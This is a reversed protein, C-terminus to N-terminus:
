LRKDLFIFGPRSSPGAHLPAQWWVQCGSNSGWFSFQSRFTTMAECATTSHVCAYGILLICFPYYQLPRAPYQFWDSLVHENYSCLTWSLNTLFSFSLPLLLLKQFFSSSDPSIAGLNVTSGARGSNRPKIGLVWLSESVRKKTEGLVAQGYHISMWAPLVGMYMLYFCSLSSPCVSWYTLLIDRLMLIHAWIGLAWKFFPRTSCFINTVRTSSPPTSAPIGPVWQSALSARGTFELNLPEAEVLWTSHCLFVDLMLRLAGYAHECLHLFVQVCVYMCIFMYVHTYASCVCVCARVCLIFSGM